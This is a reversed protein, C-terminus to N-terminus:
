APIVFEPLFNEKRFLRLKGGAKEIARETVKARKFLELCADAFGWPGHSNVEIYRDLKGADNLAHREESDLADELWWFDKPQGKALVAGAKRFPHGYGWKQCRIGKILDLAYVSRLLTQIDIRGDPNSWPWCTLWRCDFLSSLIRLQSIVGPRLDYSTDQFYRAIITDDIDIYLTPKSM